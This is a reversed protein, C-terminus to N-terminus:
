ESRAKLNGPDQSPESSCALIHVVVYLKGSMFVQIARVSSELGPSEIRSRRISSPQVCASSALRHPVGCASIERISFPRSSARQDVIWRIEFASAVVGARGPRVTALPPLIAASGTDGDLFHDALPVVIAIVGALFHDATM